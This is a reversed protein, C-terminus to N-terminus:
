NDRESGGDLDGELSSEVGDCFLKKLTCIAKLGIIAVRTLHLFYTKMALVDAPTLLTSTQELCDLSFTNFMLIKFIHSKFM